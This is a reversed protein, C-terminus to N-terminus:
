CNTESTGMVHEKLVSSRIFHEIFPSSFSGSAFLNLFYEM